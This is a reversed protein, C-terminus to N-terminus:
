VTNSKHRSVEQSKIKKKKLHDPAGRSRGEEGGRGKGTRTASFGGGKPPGAGAQVAGATPALASSCSSDSGGSGSGPAAFSSNPVTGVPPINAPSSSSGPGGWSRSDGSSTNRGKAM